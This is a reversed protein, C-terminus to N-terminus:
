DLVHLSLFAHPVEYLLGEILLAQSTSFFSVPANLNMVPFAINSLAAFEVRSNMLFMGAYRAPANYEANLKKRFRM